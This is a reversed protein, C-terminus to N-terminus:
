GLKDTKPFAWRSTSSYTVKGSFPYKPCKNSSETGGRQTRRSLITQINILSAKM